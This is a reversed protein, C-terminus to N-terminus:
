MKIPFVALNGVAFPILWTLETLNLNEALQTRTELHQGNIVDCPIELGSPFNISEVEGYVM